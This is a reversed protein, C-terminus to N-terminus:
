YISKLQDKYHKIIIQMFQDYTEKQIDQEVFQCLVPSLEYRIEQKNIKDSYEVLHM